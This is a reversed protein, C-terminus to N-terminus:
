CSEHTGCGGSDLLSSSGRLDCFWARLSPACHPAWALAGWHPLLAARHETAQPAFKVGGTGRKGCSHYKQLRRRKM